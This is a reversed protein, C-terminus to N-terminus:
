ESQEKEKDTPYSIIIESAQEATPSLVGLINQQLNILDTFVSLYSPMEDESVIGRKKEYPSAIQIWQAEFAEIDRSMVSNINEVQERDEDTLETAATLFMVNNSIMSKFSQLTRYTDSAQSLVQEWAAPEMGKRIEKKSVKKKEQRVYKKLAEPATDDVHRAVEKATKYMAKEQRQKKLQEKKHQQLEKKRQNKSVPKKTKETASGDTEKTGM